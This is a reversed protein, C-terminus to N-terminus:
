MDEKDALHMYYDRNARAGVMEVAEGGPCGDRFLDWGPREQRM